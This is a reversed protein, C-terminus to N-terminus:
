DQGKNDTELPPGHRSGAPRWFDAWEKLEVIHADAGHKGFYSDIVYVTGTELEIIAAANHPWAGDVFFGRHVPNRKRHYKLLGADSLFILYLDANITEDICDMQTDRDAEFTEAEPRDQDIGSSLGAYTEMRGIARVIRQREEEATKPAPKFIAEIQSWQKDTISAPTRYSCSFGHCVAFSERSFTPDMYHYLNMGQNGCAALFLFTSLALCVSRM